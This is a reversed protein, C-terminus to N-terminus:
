STKNLSGWGWTSCGFHDDRDMDASIERLIGILVGQICQHYVFVIFIFQKFADYFFLIVVRKWLTKKNNNPAFLCRELSFPFIVSM